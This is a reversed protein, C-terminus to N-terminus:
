TCTSLQVNRCGLDNEKKKQTCISHLFSNYEINISQLKINDNAKFTTTCSFTLPNQSKETNTQILKAERALKNETHKDTDVQTADMFQLSVRTLRHKFESKSCGFM